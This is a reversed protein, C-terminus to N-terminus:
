PCIDPAPPPSHGVKVHVIALSTFNTRGDIVTSPCVSHGAKNVDREDRCVAAQREGITQNISKCSKICVVNLWNWACYALLRNPM